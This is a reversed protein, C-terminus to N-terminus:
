RPARPSGDTGDFRPDRRPVGRGGPCRRSQGAAGRRLPRVPRPPSPARRRVRLSQGTASGRRPSARRDSPDSILGDLASTVLLANPPLAVEEQIFSLRLWHPVEECCPPTTVRNRDDDDGRAEPDDRCAIRVLLRRRRRRRWR